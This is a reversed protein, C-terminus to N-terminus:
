KGKYTYIGKKYSDLIKQVGKEDNNDIYYMLNKMFDESIGFRDSMTSLTMLREATGLKALEKQNKMIKEAKIKSDINKGVLNWMNQAAMRRMNRTNADNQAQEVDKQHTYERQQAGLTSRLRAEQSRYQNNAQQTQLGINQMQQSLNAGIGVNYANRVQSSRTNINMRQSTAQRNAENVLAADDIRNERMLDLARYYEPNNRQRVSESGRLGDSIASSIMPTMSAILGIKDINLNSGFSKFKSMRDLKKYNIDDMRTQPVPVTSYSPDTAPKQQEIIKNSEVIDKDYYDDIISSTTNGLSIEQGSYQTNDGALPDGYYPTDQNQTTIDFSSDTNYNRLSYDQALFKMPKSKLPQWPDTDYDSRIGGLAYKKNEELPKQKKKRENKRKLDELENKMSTMGLANNFWRKSYKNEIKKSVDATGLKKSFIYGNHETEEGEVEINGSRIGGQSHKPGTYKILNNTKIKKM